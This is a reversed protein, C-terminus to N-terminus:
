PAAPTAIPYPQEVFQVDSDAVALVSWRSGDEGTLTYAPLMLVSGDPQWYQALGLEAGTVTVTSLPVTLGPRAPVTTASATPSPSPLVDSGSVPSPGLASWPATSVRQVATAAGVVPYGPVAELGASFGSAEVVNGAPDFVVRWSLQTREGTVLQWATIATRDVYRDVQWDVSGTDVGIGGLLASTLEIARAPELQQGPAPSAMTAPDTFTWTFLPDDAVVLQPAGSAGVTWAGNEEVPQGSAGFTGALVSAVQAGSIGANVLRYGTAVGSTDPLGPAATLVVPWPASAKRADASASATPDPAVGGVPMPEAGSSEEVVPEPRVVIDPGPASVRGYAVGAVAAAAVVLVVVLVTVVIRWASRRPRAHSPPGAEAPAQVADVQSEDAM